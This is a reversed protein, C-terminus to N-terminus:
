YKLYQTNSKMAKSAREDILANNLRCIIYFSIMDFSLEITKHIRTMESYDDSSSSFRILYQIGFQFGILIAHFVLWLGVYSQKLKIVGYLLLFLFILLCLIFILELYQFICSHECDDGDDDLIHHLLNNIYYSYHLIKLVSYFITFGILFSGINKRM